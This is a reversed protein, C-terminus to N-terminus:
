CFARFQNKRQILVELILACGGCNQCIKHLLEYFFALACGIDPQWNYRPTGEAILSYNFTKVNDDM